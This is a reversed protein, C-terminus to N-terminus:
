ELWYAEILDGDASMQWWEGGRDTDAFVFYDGAQACAGAGARITEPIRADDLVFALGDWEPKGM